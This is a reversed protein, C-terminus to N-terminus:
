RDSGNHSREPRRHLMLEALYWVLTGAPPLMRGRVAQLLAAGSIALMAAGRTDLRGDTLRGLGVDVAATAGSLARTIEDSTALSPRPAAVDFLGHAAAFREIDDAQGRHLVLVSGTAPNARLGEVGPCGALAELAEKFYGVDGRRDPVRFRIRGPAVHVRLGSPMTM